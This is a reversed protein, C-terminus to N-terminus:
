ILKDMLYLDKNAAYYEDQAAMLEDDVVHLYSETTALHRHGLAASIKDISWGFVRRSDAFYHRVM